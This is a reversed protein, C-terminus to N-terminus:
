KGPFKAPQGKPATPKLVPLSRRKVVSRALKWEKSERIWTDELSRSEVVVRTQPVKELRQTIEWEQEVKCICTGGRQSMDLVKTRLTVSLSQRFLERYRFLDSWKDTARGESDVGRYDATRHSVMGEAFKLETALSLGEYFDQIDRVGAPQAWVFAVSLLMWLLIRM